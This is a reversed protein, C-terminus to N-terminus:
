SLTNLLLYTNQFIHIYSVKLVNEKLGYSEKYEMTYDLRKNQLFLRHKFNFDNEFHFINIGIDVNYDFKANYYNFYRNHFNHM